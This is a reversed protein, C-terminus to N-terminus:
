QRRTLTTIGRRRGCVVGLIPGPRFINYMECQPYNDYLKQASRQAARRTRHGPPPPRFLLADM